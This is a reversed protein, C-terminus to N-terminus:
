ARPQRGDRQARPDCRRPQRRQGLHQRASAHVPARHEQFDPPAPRPLSPLLTSAPGAPCPRTITLHGRHLRVQFNVLRRVVRKRNVNFEPSAVHSAPFPVGGTSSATSNADAVVVDLVSGPGVFSATSFIHLRRADRGDVRPVTGPTDSFAAPPPASAASLGGGAARDTSSLLPVLGVGAAAGDRQRHQPGNPQSFKNHVERSLRPIMNPRTVASSPALIPATLVAPQAITTRSLAHAPPVVPLQTRHWYPAPSLSPQRRQAEGVM